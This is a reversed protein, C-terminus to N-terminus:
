AARAIAGIDLQDYLGVTPPRHSSTTAAAPRICARQGHSQRIGDCAKQLTVAVRNGMVSLFLGTIYSSLIGWWVHVCPPRTNLMTFLTVTWDSFLPTSSCVPKPEPFPDPKSVTADSIEDSNYVTTVWNQSIKRCVFFVDSPRFGTISLLIKEQNDWCYLRPKLYRLFSWNLSKHLNGFNAIYYM